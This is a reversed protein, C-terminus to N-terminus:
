KKPVYKMMIAIMIVIPLIVCFLTVVVPDIVDAFQYWIGGISINTYQGTVIYLIGTPVLMGTIILSLVLGIIQNLSFRAM